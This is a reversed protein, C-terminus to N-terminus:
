VVCVTAVPVTTAVGAAHLGLVGRPLRSALLPLPPPPQLTSWRRAGGGGGGGGCEVGGCVSVVLGAAM